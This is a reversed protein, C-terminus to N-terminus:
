RRVNNLAAFDVEDAISYPAAISTAPTSFLDDQEFALQSSAAGALLAAVSAATMFKMVM